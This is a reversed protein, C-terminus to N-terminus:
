RFLGMVLYVGKKRDSKTFGERWIDMYVLSGRGLSWVTFVM